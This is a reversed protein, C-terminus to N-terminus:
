SPGGSGARRSRADRDDAARVVEGVDLDAAAADFTPVPPMAVFISAARMAVAAPTTVVTCPRRGPRALHERACSTPVTKRGM